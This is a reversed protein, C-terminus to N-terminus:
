QHFYLEFGKRVFYRRYSEVKNTHCYNNGQKKFDAIHGIVTEIIFKLEGFACSGSQHLFLNVLFVGINLFVNKQRKLILNFLQLAAIRIVLEVTRKALFVVFTIVCIENNGCSGVVTHILEVIQLLSFQVFALQERVNDTVTGVFFNLCAKSRAAGCTKKVLIRSSDSRDCNM